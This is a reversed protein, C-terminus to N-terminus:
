RLNQRLNQRLNECLDLKMGESSFFFSESRNGIASISKPVALFSQTGRRGVGSGQGGLNSLCSHSRSGNDFM